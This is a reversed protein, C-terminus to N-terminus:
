RGFLFTPTSNNLLAFIVYKMMTAILQNHQKYTTIFFAVLNHEVLGITVTFPFNGPGVIYALSSSLTRILTTLWTLYLTLM